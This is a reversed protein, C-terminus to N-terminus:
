TALSTGTVTMFGIRFPNLAPSSPHGMLDAHKAGHQGPSSDCCGIFGCEACRGLHLWWGGTKLCDECGNGKPTSDPNIGPLVKRM